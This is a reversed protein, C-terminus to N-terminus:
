FLELVRLLVFDENALDLVAVHVKARLLVERQEVLDLGVTLLAGGLVHVLRGKTEETRKQVCSIPFRQFRDVFPARGLPSAM